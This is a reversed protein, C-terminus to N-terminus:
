PREREARLRKIADEILAEQAIDDEVIWPELLECLGNLWDIREDQEARLADRERTVEVAGKWTEEMLDIHAQLENIAAHLRAVELVAAAAKVDGLKGPSGLAEWVSEWNGIVISAEEKWRRLREVVDRADAVDKARVVVWGDRLDVPGFHDCLSCRAIWGLWEPFDPQARHIWHHNCPPVAAAQDADSM